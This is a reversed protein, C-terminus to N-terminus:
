NARCSDHRSCRSPRARHRRRPSPQTVSIFYWPGCVNAHWTGCVNPPRSDPQIVCHFFLSSRGGFLSVTIICYDEVVGCHHHLLRSGGQSRAMQSNAAPTNAASHIKTCTMSIYLHDDVRRDNIAHQHLCFRRDTITERLPQTRQNHPVPRGARGFDRPPSKIRIGEPTGGDRFM